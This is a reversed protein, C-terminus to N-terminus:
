GIDGDDPEDVATSWQVSDESPEEMVYNSVAEFEKGGETVREGAMYSDHDFQPKVFPMAHGDKSILRWGRDTPAFTNGPILSRYFKSAQKVVDGIRYATLPYSQASWTEGWTHPDGFADVYQDQMVALQQRFVDDTQRRALEAGAEDSLKQLQHRDMTTYDM